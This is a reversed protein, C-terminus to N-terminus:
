YDQADSCLPVAYANYGVYHVIGYEVCENIYATFEDIFEDFETM